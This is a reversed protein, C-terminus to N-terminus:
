SLIVSSDCTLPPAPSTGIKGLLLFNVSSKPQTKPNNPTQSEPILDSTVVHLQLPSTMILEPLFRRCPQKMRNQVSANAPHRPGDTLVWGTTLM